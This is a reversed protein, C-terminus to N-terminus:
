GRGERNRAEYRETARDLADLVPQPTSDLNANIAEVIENLCGVLVDALPKEGKDRVDGIRATARLTYVGDEGVPELWVTHAPQGDLLQQLGIQAVDLTV